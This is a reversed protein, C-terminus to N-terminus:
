HNPQIKEGEQAHQNQLLLIVSQLIQAFKYCYLFSRQVVMPHYNKLNYDKQVSNLMWHMQHKIVQMLGNNYWPREKIFAGSLVNYQNGVYNMEPGGCRTNDPTKCEKRALPLAPTGNWGTGTGARPKDSLSLCHMRSRLQMIARCIKASWGSSYICAWTLKRNWIQTIRFFNRLCCKIQEFYKSQIVAVWKVANISDKTKKCYGKFNLVQRVM